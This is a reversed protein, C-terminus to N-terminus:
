PSQRGLRDWEAKQRLLFQMRARDGSAAAQQIQTQLQRVEIGRKRQRLAAVAGEVVDDTIPGDDLLIQAIWHREEPALRDLIDTWTEAQSSWEALQDFTSELSLGALLREALITETWRARVDESEIWARLLVREAFLFEASPLSTTSLQTRRERADHQLQQSLLPADLGLSAACNEALNQRLIPDHVQSLFPLLHNLAAIKGEGRRLDFQQRM